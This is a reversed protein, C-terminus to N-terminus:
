INKNRNHFKIKKSTISKTWSNSDLQSLIFAKTRGNVYSHAESVDLHTKLRYSPRGRENEEGWLTTVARKLKITKITPGKVHGYKSYGKSYLPKLSILSYLSKKIATLVSHFHWTQTKILLARVNPHKKPTIVKKYM